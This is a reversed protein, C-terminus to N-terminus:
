KNVRLYEFIGQFAEHNLVLECESIRIPNHHLDLPDEVM